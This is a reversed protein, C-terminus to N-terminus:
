RILGKVENAVDAFDSEFLRRATTIGEVDQRIIYAPSFTAMSRVGRVRYWKGRSATIGTMGAVYWLAKSGLMLIRQPKLEDIERYLWKNVCIEASEDKPFKGGPFCHLVNTVVTNKKNLVGTERLAERVVEGAAGSLLGQGWDDDRTPCEGIVMLVPDITNGTATTVRSCGSRLGCASCSTMEQYISSPESM